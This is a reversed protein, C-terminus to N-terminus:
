RISRGRKLDRKKEAPRRAPRKQRAVPGLRAMVVTVVGAHTEVTVQARAGASRPVKVKAIARLTAEMFELRQPSPREVSLDRRVRQPFAIRGRSGAPLKERDWLIADNPPTEDPEHFNVAWFPVTSAGRSAGVLDNAARAQEAHRESDFFALVPDAAGGLITVVRMGKEPRPSVIEWAGGHKWPAGRLFAVGAAAFARVREITMGEAEMIGAPMAPLEGRGNEEQCMAGVMDALEDIRELEGRVEVSVGLPDLAGRLAALVGPALARVHVRSPLYNLPAVGPAMPELACSVVARLAHTDATGDPGPAPVIAAADGSSVCVAFAAGPGGEGRSTGGRARTGPERAPEVRLVDLEWFEDDRHVPVGRLRALMDKTSPGQMTM